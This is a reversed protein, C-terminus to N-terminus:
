SLQLEVAEDPLAFSQLVRSCTITPRNEFQFHTLDLPKKPSARSLGEHAFKPLCFQGIVKKQEGHTWEFRRWTCM